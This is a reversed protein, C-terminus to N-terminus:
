SRVTGSNNHQLILGNINEETQIQLHHVNEDVLPPFLELYMAQKPACVPLSMEHLSHLLLSMELCLAYSQIICMMAQMSAKRLTM